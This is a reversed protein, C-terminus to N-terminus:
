LLEEKDSRSRNPVAEPLSYKNEVLGTSIRYQEQDITVGATRYQCPNEAFVGFM